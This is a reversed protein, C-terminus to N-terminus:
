RERERETKRQSRVTHTYVSPVTPRSWQREFARQAGIVAHKDARPAPQLQAAAGVALGPPQEETTM